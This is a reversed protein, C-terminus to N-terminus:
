ISVLAPSSGAAPLQFTQTLWQHPHVQIWDVTVRELLDPPRRVTRSSACQQTAEPVLVGGTPVANADCGDRSSNLVVGQLTQQQRTAKCPLRSNPKNTDSEGEGERLVSSHLRRASAPRIIHSCILSTGLSCRVRRLAPRQKNHTAHTQFVGSSNDRNLLKMGVICTVPLM